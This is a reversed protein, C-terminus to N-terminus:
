SGEHRTLRWEWLKPVKVKTKDTHTDMLKVAAEEFMRRLETKDKEPTATEDFMAVSHIPDPIVVQKRIRPTDRNLVKSVSQIKDEHNNKRDNVTQSYFENPDFMEAIFQLISTHDMNGSYVHRSTVMPSVIIAPVRPGTTKFPTYEENPPSYPIQLPPEHDFFGGHEDHTVIMVTKEWRAPNVILARYVRRLFQEGPGVPLPAHNDNPQDSGIHPLDEYSPEIVIVQPFEDDPEEKVDMSLAELRRFDDSLFEEFMSVLLFYSLLGDYYVRWRIKHATLWDFLLNEPRPLILKNEDITSDGTFAMLKNPQTSAPFPAFWRDCVAYNDALFNTIPVHDPSFFGMVEPTETRSRTRKHYAKVFGSMTYINNARAMQVQIQKRNHPPDTPLYRDVPMVFPFYLEGDSSPNAYDPRRLPARLGNVSQRNDYDQHSLHGLIHDFSRNEMMVIVITDVLERIKELSPM